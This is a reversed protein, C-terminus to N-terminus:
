YKTYWGKAAIVAKCRRKMSKALKRLLGQEMDEWCEVAARILRRKSEDNRPLGALEPYRKHIAEKLLKWVNEIPNLDPSYAPWEVLEVGNEAAWETLWTQVIKATHTSANDQVFVSGPTCITPLNEQLCELVRQANVGGKKSDPHGHMAWLSSRYRASFAGWFM